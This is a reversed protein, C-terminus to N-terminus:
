GEEAEEWWPQEARRRLQDIRLQRMEAAQAEIAEATGDRPKPVEPVELFAWCCRFAYLAADCIDSHYGPDLKLEGVRRAEADWQLMACDQAFRSSPPARFSGSRLADDLLMLHEAKRTKEAAEVHLAWRVRLEEEIKRGLGGTDIVTGAPAYMGVLRRVRDGLQTITLKPSVYEHVLHVQRTHRKWGLVALADSDEYGLDIGLVYIWDEMPGALEGANRVRDYHLALAGEDQVWEGLYERRYTASQESWGHRERVERLLDDIPRGSLRQLHVNERMTWGHHQWGGRQTGEDAEYFYGAKVPGPTGAIVLQGDYDLLAPELIDDVLTEAVVPRIAQVEDVVALGASHGRIPEIEGQDKAGFLYIRPEGDLEPFKMYAEAQNAVGGLGHQQNLRQLVPWLIQRANKLTPGVYLANPNGPRRVCALLKGAVGTTKGARRSCRAVARKAVSRVFALQAPIDGYIASPDFPQRARRREVELALQEYTARPIM